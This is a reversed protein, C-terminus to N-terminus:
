GTSTEIAAVAARLLSASGAGDAETVVVGPRVHQRIFGTAAHKACRTALAVADAGRTQARLQDSGVRDASTQVRARPAFRAVGEAARRLAGEDLSYLLVSIPGVSPTPHDQEDQAISWDLNLGVEAAVTRAMWVLDPGLRWRHRHLPELADLAFRLRADPDSCASRALVDVMDLTPLVNSVSAWRSSSGGILDLTDGYDRAPPGGRTFVELLAQIGALDAPAWRDYSAALVLLAGASKWAPRGMDDAELFPGVMSWADEAGRGGVHALAEALQSDETFPPPWGSSADSLADWVSEAGSIILGWESWSRPTSIAQTAPANSLVAGVDDDTPSDGRVESVVGLTSSTSGSNSSGAVLASLHTRLSEPLDDGPLLASGSAVDTRVLSIVAAGIRADLGLRHVIAPEVGRAVRDASLAGRAVAESIGADTALDIGHLDNRRWAALVDDRVVLPPRSSIVDDLDPLRLLEADRGLQGLRHVRLYALNLPSLGGIATMEDLLDASSAASGAAIAANFEALMRGLPRPVAQVRDPRANLLDRLLPLTRWLAKQSVQSSPRLVFTTGSGVLGLIASEIPDEASLQATRGDFPVFSHAVFAEILARMSGTQAMDWCVVYADTRGSPVKRPLILPRRLGAQLPALYPALYAGDAQQLDGGPLVLNGTGFFKSIFRDADTTMRAGVM